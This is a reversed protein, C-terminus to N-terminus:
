RVCVRLESGQVVDGEWVSPLECAVASEERIVACLRRSKAAGIRLERRLTDASIPRKHTTWHAANLARARELESEPAKLRLAPSAPALSDTYNAVPVEQDEGATAGESGWETPVDTKAGAVQM